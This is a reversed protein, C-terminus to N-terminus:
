GHSVSAKLVSSRLAMANPTPAYPFVIEARVAARLPQRGQAADPPDPHRAAQIGRAARQGSLAPLKRSARRTEVRLPCLEAAQYEGSDHLASAVPAWRRAAAPSAGPERLALPQARRDARSREV